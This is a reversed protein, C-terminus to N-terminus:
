IINKDITEILIKILKDVNPPKIMSHHDGPVKIIQINKKTLEEWYMSPDDGEDIAKFFIIENQIPTIKYEKLALNIKIFSKLIHKVRDIGQDPTFFNNKKGLELIYSYQEEESLNNIIDLEDKKLNFRQEIFERILTSKDANFDYSIPYTDLLGLFEVKKGLQNLQKSMEFALIGGASFGILIYPGSPNIELLEKIYDSAIEELTQMDDLKSLQFGYIPQDKAMSRVLSTYLVLFGGNSHVLFIPHRNGREKLVVLSKLNEKEEIGMMKKLYTSISEITPNELLEVVPIEINLKNYIKNIMHLVLLSNGGMEFFNTHVSIVNEDLIESWIKQVEIEINDRPGIFNSSGKEVKKNTNSNSQQSYLNKPILNHLSSLQLDLNDTVLELLQNFLDKLYLIRNKTYLNSNYEINGVIKNDIIEFDFNLDFKATKTRHIKVQVPNENIKLNSTNYENFSYMIQFLPNHNYIRTPKLEEVIKEFPIEQHEIAEEINTKVIKLADLFTLSNKLVTRIPLSNIFSGMHNEVEMNNRGSVVIGVLIERKFSIIYLLANLLAFMFTNITIKETNCIEKIKFFQTKSIMLKINDGAPNLDNNVYNNYDYPLYAYNDDLYKLNEKWYKIKYINNNINSNQVELIESYTKNLKPLELHSNNVKSNYVKILENILINNSWGDTIIHHLVIFLKKEKNPLKLLYFKYLPGKKLDFISHTIKSIFDNIQYNDKNKEYDVISLNADKQPHIIQVINRGIMTFSTRLVDHRSIIINISDELFDENVEGSFNLSIPVNYISTNPKLKELFYLRRQNSNAILITDKYKILRDRNNKM